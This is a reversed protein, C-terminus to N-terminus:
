SSPAGAGESDGARDFEELAAPDDALERRMTAWLDGREAPPIFASAAANGLMRYVWHRAIGIRDVAAVYEDSLTTGSVSPDDTNLTTRIRLRVLDPLPHQCFRPVVGTHVNSTPCVELTIDRERLLRIVNSDEIARVGHGIRTPHLKTVAARVSEPGAAEGAHVTISLGAELAREFPGSFAEPPYSTEDGALDIARVWRGLRDIAIDVIEDAVSLPQDRPIQLILCTRMGTEAEAAKTAEIVWAVVEDFSFGEARALALPNFRLELYRVNDRAADVIVERALRQIVERSIYFRRLVEFKALFRQFDPLDDTMQVLPRLHEVDYGPLEIGHQEAVEVLTSLNLSGELHRHLDIKPLDHAWRWLARRHDQERGDRRTPGVARAM